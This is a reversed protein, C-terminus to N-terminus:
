WARSFQVMQVPELLSWYNKVLFHARLIVVHTVHVCLLSIIFWIINFIQLTLWLDLTDRQWRCAWTYQLVDLTWGFVCFFLCSCATVQTPDAASAWLRGPLWSMMCLMTCDECSGVSHLRSWRRPTVSHGGSDSSTETTCRVASACLVGRFM